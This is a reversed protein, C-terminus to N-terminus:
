FKVGTSIVLQSNHETLKSQPAAYGQFNTFAHFDSERTKYIYAADIYWMKYRYGLGVSINQISKQLNYSCDTGWTVVLDQGDRAGKKANSATYNYGARVSLQPTVRYEVGLRATHSAQTYDKIESNIDDAPAFNGYGDPTSVRMNNFGEYQYDVSVIAKNGVVAAAGLMLKWPSSLKWDFEAIETLNPIGSNVNTYPNFKDNEPLNPNSYLYEVGADYRETFTYWTPTHVALGLRLENIPKVIVGLKINAGSGTVHKRSALGYEAYGIAPSAPNAVNYINAGELQEGYYISRTYDLDTIGVSLGWYVINEVNGGFSINYEDVGGTERVDFSALGQTGNRYLGIYEDNGSPLILKTNYALVSRWPVAELGYDGQFVGDFYPNFGDRVALQDAPMGESYWALYNTLSTSIPMSAGRFVRDFNAARNYTVGWNFTKLPGYLITSGVYGFNNCNVKTQSNTNGFGSVGPTTKSSQFDFALTAGVESSRYIGIGAPNQNLTSLDGGLATFAGGMSMFRATGKLDSQSVQLADIASQASAAAPIAAAALSLIIKNM